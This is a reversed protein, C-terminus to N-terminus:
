RLVKLAVAQHHKLAQRTEEQVETKSYRRGMGYSKHFRSSMSEIYRARDAQSYRNKWGLVDSAVMLRVEQGFCAIEIGWRWARHLYMAEYFPLERDQKHHCLEHTLTRARTWIAQKDWNWPLLMPGHEAAVMTAREHFRFWTIANRKKREVAIERKRIEDWANDHVEDWSRMSRLRELPLIHHDASEALEIHRSRIRNDKRAHKGM